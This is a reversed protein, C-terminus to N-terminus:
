ENYLIRNSLIKLGEGYLQHRRPGTYHKMIVKNDVKGKIMYEREDLGQLNELCYAHGAQEIFYISEKKSIDLKKLYEDLRELSFNSQKFFEIGANYKAFNDDLKIGDKFYVYCGGKKQHMMFSKPNDSILEQEIEKPQKFWLMDCDLNLHFKKNSVLLSDILKKLFVYEDMHELYFNKIDPYKDLKHLYKNRVLETPIIKASPFFKNFVKRDKETFTGDDHIYLEGIQTFAKYMSALSWLCMTLDNHCTLVHISFDNNNIPKELSKNLKLIRPAMIYRYKLFDGIMGQKLAQRAMYQEFKLARLDM